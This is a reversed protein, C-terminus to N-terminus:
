LLTSSAWLLCFVCTMLLSSMLCSLPAPSVSCRHVLSWSFPLCFTIVVYQVILLNNKFSCRENNATSLVNHNRISNNKVVKNSAPSPKLSWDVGLNIDKNPASLVSLALGHYISQNKCLVKGSYKSCQFCKVSPTNVWECVNM